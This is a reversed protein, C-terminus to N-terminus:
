RTSRESDLMGRPQVVCRYNRFRFQRVRTPLHGLATTPCRVPPPPPNRCRVRPSAAWSVPWPAVGGILPAVGLMITLQAAGAIAKLLLAPVCSSCPGAWSSVPASEIPSELCRRHRKGEPVAHRSCQDGSPRQADRRSPRRGGKGRGAAAPRPRNRSASPPKLAVGCETVVDDKLLGLPPKLSKPLSDAAGAHNM